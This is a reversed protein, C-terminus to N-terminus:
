KRWRSPATLLCPMRRPCPFLDGVEECGGCGGGLNGEGSLAWAEEPTYYKLFFPAPVCEGRVLKALSSHLGGAALAASSAVLVACPVGAADLARLARGLGVGVVSDAYVTMSDDGAGLARPAPAVGGEEKTGHAVTLGSGLYCRVGWGWGGGGCVCVFVLV